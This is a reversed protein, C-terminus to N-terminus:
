SAPLLQWLKCAYSKPEFHCRCGPLLMMFHFLHVLTWTLPKIPGYAQSCRWVKCNVQIVHWAIDVTTCAISRLAFAMQPKPRLKRGSLDFISWSLQLLVHSQKNPFHWSLRLLICYTQAIGSFEQYSSGYYRHLNHRSYWSHINASVHPLTKCVSQRDSEIYRSWWKLLEHLQSQFALQNLVIM